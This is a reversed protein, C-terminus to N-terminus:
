AGFVQSAKTGMDVIEDNQFYDWFFDDYSPSQLLLNRWKGSDENM